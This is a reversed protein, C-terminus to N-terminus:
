TARVPLAVRPSREDSTREIGDAAWQADIPQARGHELRVFCRTAGLARGAEEVAAQLAADLDLETRLRRGISMVLRERDLAEALALTSRTRELAITAESALTQMVTLDDPSFARHEGTTAVSIVAIM